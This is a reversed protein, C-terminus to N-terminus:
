LHRIGENRLERFMEQIVICGELWICNECLRNPSEKCNSCGSGIYIEIEDFLDYQVVYEHAVDSDNKVTYIKAFFETLREPYEIEPVERMSMINFNGNANKTFTYHILTSNMYHVGEDWATVIAYVHWVDKEKRIEVIDAGYDMHPSGGYIQHIILGKQEDWNFKEKERYKYSEISFNPNFYERMFTELKDPAVGMVVGFYYDHGTLRELEEGEYHFQGEVSSFLSTDSWDWCQMNIYQQLIIWMDVDNIDEFTPFSGWVDCLRQVYDALVEEDSTLVPPFCVRCSSKHPIEPDPEVSTVTLTTVESTIVSVTSVTSQATKPETKQSTTEASV